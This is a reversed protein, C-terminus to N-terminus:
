RVNLRSIQEGYSQEAEAAMAGNYEANVEMMAVKNSLYNPWDKPLYPRLSPLSASTLAENYLSAAQNALKAVIMPKMGDLLFVVM